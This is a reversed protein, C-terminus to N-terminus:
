VGINLGAGISLGGSISVGSGGSGSVPLSTFRRANAPTFMSWPAAYDAMIEAPSLIRNYIKLASITANSASAGTNDRGLLFGSHVPISATGGATGTFALAGNNYYRTQNGVGVGAMSVAIHNYGGSPFPTAKEIPKNPGAFISIGAYSDYYAFLSANYATNGGFLQAQVITPNKQLLILTFQTLGSVPSVPALAQGTSGDFKIAPGDATAVRAVGGTLVFHSNGTFDYVMAGSSENFLWCGQLGQAAPHSRDLQAGMGPKWRPTSGIRIM